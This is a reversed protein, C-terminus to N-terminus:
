FISELTDVLRRIDHQAEVYRRGNEGLTKREEETMQYLEAIARAFERPKEPPITMGAKAQGVIDNLVNGAFVIPRKACLYDFIKNLSIGYQYLPLDLMSILAIDVRELLLPVEEKSVPEHFSINHLQKQQALRMLNEKEPGDGVFFLHIDTYGQEQLLEAAEVITVLANAQGHAGLYLAKFKKEQEGLIKDVAPSKYKDKILKRDYRAIDVGNPIYVVKDQPYGQKQMYHVAGPLLVIIREAKKYIFKELVRLARATFSKEKITGMDIATQPWLDRIEAFFRCKKLLSIYYGALCTLPHFSSAIIIDPKKERLCTWFVHITYSLINLIRKLDNKKYPFTKLWCFHVSNISEKRLCEWSPLTESRLKHDFSSAFITVEYGRKVLEEALDYHRTGSGSRPTVAYQNLIWIKKQM